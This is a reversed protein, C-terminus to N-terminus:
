RNAFWEVLATFDYQRAVRQKEGSLVGPTDIFTLDELIQSPMFSGQFKNLFDNGFTSLARFPKDAQVALANGPILMEKPGYMIASFKDTTPEPGIKIFSSFFFNPPFVLVNPQFSMIEITKFTQNKREVLQVIKSNKKFKKVGVNQGLFDRELLYRIFTTKGVSYQGLLLIM